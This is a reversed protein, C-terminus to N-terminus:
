RLKTLTLATVKAGLTGTAPRVTPGAAIAWSYAGPPAMKSDWTWDVATGTGSGAGVVKGTADAVTVTWPLAESLRATFRVPGGVAGSVLPSYLKRGGTRAFQQA